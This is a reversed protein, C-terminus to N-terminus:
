SAPQVDKWNIGRKIRLLQTETVKFSKSLTRLPVGEAIRKKILMVRTETLKHAKSHDFRKGIRKKRAEKVHPSKQQHAINEEHTMWQLNNVHNNLRNYDLHAVITHQLFPKKLFYEAVLRHILVQYYVTRKKEDDRCIKAYSLKMFALLNDSEEIQKKMLHYKEDKVRKVKLKQKLPGAKRILKNIQERIYELRKQSKEDRHKFLKLRIIRYGNIMSGKMLRGEAIKTFTKVRGYNSLEIRATITYEASFKLPVWKEGPLDKTIIKQKM